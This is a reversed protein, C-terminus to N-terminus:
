RQFASVSRGKPVGAETGSQSPGAHEPPASESACADAGAPGSLRDLRIVRAPVGAAIANAPVDHTVVAGAGIVAGHGVTVGPLIVAHTGIWVDDEIVVPRMIGTGQMVPATHDHTLSTIAVHSAIMVRDGITVGGMGHLQFFPSIIVSNGIEVQKTGFLVFPRTLSVHRGCRKLIITLYMRLFIGNLARVGRICIRVPYLLFWLDSM